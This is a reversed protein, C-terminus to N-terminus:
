IFATQLVLEVVGASSRSVFRILGKVARNSTPVTALWRNIVTALNAAFFYVWGYFPKAFLSWKTNWASLIGKQAVWALTMWVPSYNALPRQMWQGSKPLWDNPNPHLLWKVQAELLHAGAFSFAKGLHWLFLKGLWQFIVSSFSPQPRLHSPHLQCKHTCAFACAPSEHSSSSRNHCTAAAAATKQLHHWTLYWGGVVM